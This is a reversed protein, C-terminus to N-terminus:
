IRYTIVIYIQQGTKISPMDMLFELISLVLVYILLLCCAVLLWSESVACAVAQSCGLELYPLYLVFCNSQCCRCSLDGCVIGRM